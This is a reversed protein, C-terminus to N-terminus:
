LLESITRGIVSLMEPRGMHGHRCDVPVIREVGTIYDQWQHAISEEASREGVAEFFLLDGDVVSYRHERLLNFSNEYIDVLRRGNQEIFAALPHGTRHLQESIYGMTLGGESVSDVEVDLEAAMVGLLEERSFTRDPTPKSDMLVLLEVREGAQQLQAAIEHAVSGGFSWGLLRYPGHSQVAVIGRVYDAAMDALTRPLREGDLLGRAQIGYVRFREPISRALPYYAWSRGGMPHVCFLTEEQNGPRLPIMIDLSPDSRHDSLRIALSRPTPTDAMADVTLSTAFAAAISTCLRNMTEMDGCLDVFNDDPGLLVGGLTGAILECIKLEYAALLRTDPDGGRLRAQQQHEVQQALDALTPAEFVLRVPLEVGLVAQVRDVLRIAVL